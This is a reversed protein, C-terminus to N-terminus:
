IDVDSQKDRYGRFAITSSLNKALTRQNVCERQNISLDLLGVKSNYLKDLNLNEKIHTFITCRM